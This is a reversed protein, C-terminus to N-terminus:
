VYSFLPDGDVSVCPATMESLKKAWRAMIDVGESNDDLGLERTTGHLDLTVVETRPCVINYWEESVARRM